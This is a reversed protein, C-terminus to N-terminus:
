VLTYVLVYVFIVVVITTIITMILKNVDLADQTACLPSRAKILLTEAVEKIHRANAVNGCLIKM